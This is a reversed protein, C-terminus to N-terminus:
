HRRFASYASLSEVQRRRSRQPEVQAESIGRALGAGSDPEAGVYETLTLDGAIRGGPRATVAFSPAYVVLEQWDATSSEDLCELDFPNQCTLCLIFEGGGIGVPIFFFSGSSRWERHQYKREKECFLCFFDGTGKLGVQVRRGASIVLFM